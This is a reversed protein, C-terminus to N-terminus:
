ERSKKRYMLFHVVAALEQETVQQETLDKSHDKNQVRITYAKLQLPNFDPIINKKRGKSYNHCRACKVKYLEEGREFRSVFGKKEQETLGEPMTYEAKKTGICSVLVALSVIFLIRYM